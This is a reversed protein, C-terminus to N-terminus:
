ALIERAAACGDLPIAGLGFQGHPGPLADPRSKKGGHTMSEHVEALFLHTLSTIILHRLLGKYSRGEFHSLGLETKEDEFCREIRWRSFAVHLLVELPTGAPANSIFFKIEQPNELNRAIVLWHPRTPLGDRQLYVPVAKAEWVAPGKETDKVHFKTWPIARVQPSYRMMNEVTIPRPATKKLRPFHGTPGKAGPKRKYLLAPMALWGTFTRKVEAVYHQGRDDLAFFFEPNHCYGEDFTMWHFVVGNKVARDRLEVAIQWKPRHVVEDPIDAERCRERDESWEQPLFLDSDLLCHFDGAVYGLHVTVICNEVKGVRGCWQRQVGPTERGKKVHGSEDFIGISGPHGHRQAVRQQLLDRVRLHDWGYLSLFQQLC